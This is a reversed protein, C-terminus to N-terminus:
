NAAERAWPQDGRLNVGWSPLSAALGAACGVVVRVTAGRAAVVSGFPVFGGGGEDGEGGEEEEERYAM